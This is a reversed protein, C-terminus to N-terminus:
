ELTENESIIKIQGQGAELQSSVAIYVAQRLAMPLVAYGSYDIHEGLTFQFHGVFNIELAKEAKGLCWCIKWAIFCANGLPHAHKTCPLPSRESVNFSWLLHHLM